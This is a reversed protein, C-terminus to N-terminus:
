DYANYNANQFISNYPRYIDFGLDNKYFNMGREMQIFGYVGILLVIVVRSANNKFLVLIYPLLLIEFFNYYILGRAVIIQLITGSFLIYLVISIFYLNFFLTFSNNNIRDRYKLLIFLWVLRKTAGLLIALPTTTLFDSSMYFDAKNGITSGLLAFLQLPLRNILGSISFALAVLVMIVIFKANIRTYLFYAPVFLIASSHFFFALFICLCFLTKKRALIFPISCLCIALSIYQRNMGLYTLMSFYLIFVSLLPYISYKKILSFFIIYIFLAHLILFVSYSETMSRVIKNLWVYAIDYESSDIWLCKNFYLHYNVWDTAIGWRCGDHFVLLFFALFLGLILYLSHKKTCFCDIIALTFLFLFTFTYM